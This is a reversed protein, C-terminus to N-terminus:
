RWRLIRDGALPCGLAQFEKVSLDHFVPQCPGMVGQHANTGTPSADYGYQSWAGTRWPLNREDPVHAHLVDDSHVSTWRLNLVQETEPGWARWTVGCDLRANHPRETARSYVM